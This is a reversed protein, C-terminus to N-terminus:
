GKVVGHFDEGFNGVLGGFGVEDGGTFNEAGTSEVLRGDGVLEFNGAVGGLFVVNSAGEMGGGKRNEGLMIDGDGVVLQVDVGTTHYLTDM